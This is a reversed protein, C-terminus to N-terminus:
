EYSYSEILYVFENSFYRAFIDYTGPDSEYFLDGNRNLVAFHLRDEGEIKVTLLPFGPAATSVSVLVVDGDVILALYRLENGDIDDVCIDSHITYGECTDDLDIYYPIQALAPAVMVALAAISGLITKIM